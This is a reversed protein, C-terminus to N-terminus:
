QRSGQEWIIDAFTHTHIHTGLFTHSSLLFRITVLVDASDLLRHATLCDPNPITLESGDQRELQQVFASVKAPIWVLAEEGKEM